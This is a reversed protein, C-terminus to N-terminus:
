VEKLYTLYPEYTTTVTLLQVKDYERVVSSSLITYWEVAQNMDETDLSVSECPIGDETWNLIVWYRIEEKIKDM